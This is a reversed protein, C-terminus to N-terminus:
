CCPPEIAPGPDIEVTDGGGEPWMKLTYDYVECPADRRIQDSVVQRPDGSYAATDTPTEGDKFTLRWHHTLSMWELHGVGPAQVVIYPERHISDEGVVSLMQLPRTFDRERPRDCSEHLGLAAAVNVDEGTDPEDEAPCGTVAFALVVILASPLTRSKM